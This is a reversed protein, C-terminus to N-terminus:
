FDRATPTVISWSRASSEYKLFVVDKIGGRYRIDRPVLWLVAGLSLNDSQSLKIKKLVIGAAFNYFIFDQSQLSHEVQLFRDNQLFNPEFNLSGEYNKVSLKVDLYKSSVMHESTFQESTYMDKNLYKPIKIM